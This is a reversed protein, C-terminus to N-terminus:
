RTVWGRLRDSAEQSAWRAQFVCMAALDASKSNARGQLPKGAADLTSFAPMTIPTMEDVLIVCRASTDGAKIAAVDALVMQRDHCLTGEGKPKSVMMGANLDTGDMQGCAALIMEEYEASIPYTVGKGGRMKAAKAKLSTGDMLTATGTWDVQDSRRFDIAADMWVKITVGYRFPKSKRPEDRLWNDWISVQIAQAGHPMPATVRKSPKIGDVRLWDAFETALTPHATTLHKITAWAEAMQTRPSQHIVPEPDLGTNIIRFEDGDYKLTM